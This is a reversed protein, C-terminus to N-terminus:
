PPQALYLKRYSYATSVPLDFEEGLGHVLDDIATIITAGLKARGEGFGTLSFRTIRRHRILFDPILSFRFRQHRCFGTRIVILGLVELEPCFMFRRYYGRFTACGTEGCVPCDRHIDPWADYVM